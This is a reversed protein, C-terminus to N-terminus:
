VSNVIIRTEIGIDYEYSISNTNETIFTYEYTIKYVATAPAIMTFTLEPQVYNASAAVVVAYEGDMATFLHM